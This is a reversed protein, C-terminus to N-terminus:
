SLKHAEEFAKNIERYIINELEELKNDLPNISERLRNMDNKNTYMLRNVDSFLKSLNGLNTFLVSLGLLNAKARANQICLEADSLSSALSKLDLKNNNIDSEMYHYLEVSFNNMKKRSNEYDNSINKILDIRDDIKKRKMEKKFEKSSLFYATIGTISAGLGIKVATDIIDLMETAM